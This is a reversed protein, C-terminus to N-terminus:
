STRKINAIIELMTEVREDIESDAVIQDSPIHAFFEEVFLTENQLRSRQEITLSLFADQLEDSGYWSINRLINKSFTAERELIYGESMEYELRKMRRILDKEGKVSSLNLKRQYSPNGFVDRGKVTDAQEGVTVSEAGASGILPKTVFGEWYRAHAKNWREETERYQKVLSSPLSAGEYGREFKSSVLEKLYKNYAKLAHTNSRDVDYRLNPTAHVGAIYLNHTSIGAQQLESIKKEAKKLLRTYERQARINAKSKAM